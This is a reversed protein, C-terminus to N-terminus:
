GSISAVSMPELTILASRVEILDAVVHARRAVLRLRSAVNGNQIFKLSRCAFGASIGFENHFFTDNALVHMM